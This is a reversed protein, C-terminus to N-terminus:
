RVRQKLNELHKRYAARSSPHRSGPVNRHHNRADTGDRRVPARWFTSGDVAGGTAALRDDVTGAVVEVM